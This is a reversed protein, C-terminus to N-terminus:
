GPDPGITLFQKLHEDVKRLIAFARQSLLVPLFDSDSRSGVGTPNDEAHPIRARADGLRFPQEPGELRTRFHGAESQVEGPRKASREACVQPVFPSSHSATEGNIKCRNNFRRIVL